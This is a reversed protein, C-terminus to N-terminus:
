KGAVADYVTALRRRKPAWAASVARPDDHYHPSRDTLRWETGTAMSQLKNHARQTM